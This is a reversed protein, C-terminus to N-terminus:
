RLIATMSAPLFEGNVGADHALKLTLTMAEDHTM